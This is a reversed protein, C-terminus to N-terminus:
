TGGRGSSEVRVAPIGVSRSMSTAANLDRDYSAGCRDCTWSRVELPESDVGCASCLRSSPFWRGVKVVQRGHHTAKEELVRVLQSWGAYHVSRALNTRALGAVCLDEVYVAQNDRVLRLALKHHADLRAERVKRHAM